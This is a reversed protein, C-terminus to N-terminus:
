RAKMIELSAALLTLSKEHSFGIDARRVRL